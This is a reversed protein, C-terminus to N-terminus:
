PRDAVAGNTRPKCLGCAKLRKAEVEEMSGLTRLNAPAIKAAASCGARHFMMSDANYVFAHGRAEDAQGAPPAAEASSLAAVLGRSPAATGPAGPRFRTAGFYGLSLGLALVVLGGALGALSPRRRPRAVPRAQEGLWADLDAALARASAYRDHPRESTARKCIRVLEAPIAPDIGAWDEASPASPGVPSAAPSRVTSVSNPGRGVLTEFLVVGLSFVDSREDAQRSNGQAQEPSMYIPTGVIAGDHTLDSDMDARRALGFDILRPRGHEDILINAPKIDRHVVGNEHAYGIADALDRIMRAAAAPEFAHHDLHWWLPRGVVRQYAVWCRGRDFGSDYVAVINPHDLRAAARAERFFRELVRDNPRAQRLIKLAVDRDLRPDYALFVEGFGGDGLRDRLQFRGLVGLSGRSWTATWESDPGRAALSEMTASISSDDRDDSGARSDLAQGCYPCAGSAPDVGGAELEVSRLCGRCVVRVPANM